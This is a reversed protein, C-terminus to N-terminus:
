VLECPGEQCNQLRAATCCQLQSSFTVAAREFGRQDFVLAPNLARVLNENKSYTNVTPVQSIPPTM